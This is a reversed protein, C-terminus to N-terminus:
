YNRRLDMGAYLSQVQDAYGNFMLTKRRFFEGIRRETAQSWRPHDVTPNVNAYFGYESAAYERWSNLPQKETFRIKVISKAHKFGYKWPVALRLPAGDQAPLVEDYLGVVMLTLPHMAEDLRLGERYPWNLIPYRVGPMMKSDAISTFEVYTAKSTPELKKILNALPFGVWPIVMSWAEVCRHRYVREELTQGKLIDELDMVGTRLCEGEITVKWPSAVFKGSNSGPDSKDSGFEYFNNYSTIDDWSNIRENPAPFTRNINALKRGHPAGKAELVSEAAAVGGAVAAAAIGAARLFDRRNVYHEKDTIESRAIDPSPKILM